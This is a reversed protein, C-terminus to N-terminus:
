RGRTRLEALFEDEDEFVESRGARVDEDAEREMEQWRPEWFWAQTADIVKQPKLLIGDKVLEVEVSDGEQLHAARRIESPLTFQGKNRIIASPM